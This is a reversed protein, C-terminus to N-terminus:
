QKYTKHTLHETRTTNVNTM